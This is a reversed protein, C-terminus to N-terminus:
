PMGLHRHRSPPWDLELQGYLHAELAGSLVRCHHPARAAYIQRVYASPDHARLSEACGLFVQRAPLSPSRGGALALWGAMWGDVGGEPGGRSWIKPLNKPCRDYDHESIGRAM